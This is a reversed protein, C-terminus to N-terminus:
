QKVVLWSSLDRGILAALRTVDERYYDVLFARDEPAMRQSRRSDFAIPRLRQRLRRPVVEKIRPWLGLRRLLYITDSSKPVAFELHKETFDPVFDPDVGLWRFVDGLM